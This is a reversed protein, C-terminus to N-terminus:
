MTCSPSIVSSRTWTMWYRALGFDFQSPFQGANEILPPSIAPTAMTAGDAEVIAATMPVPASVVRPHGGSGTASMALAHPIASGRGARDNAAIGPGRCLSRFCGLVRLGGAM